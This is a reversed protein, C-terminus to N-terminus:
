GAQLPVFLRQEGRQVLLAITKGSRTAARLDAVSKVPKGGAQLVIDGPAVGARAAPGNVGQVLLGGSVNAAEQEQPSLPRVALGLRGKDTAEDAAARQAAPDAATGLTAALTRREGKRLVELVVKAGPASEGVMAALVGSDGVPRGNFKLVVDGPQLGAKHAASDPAVAAVLAGQPRQLGFSEALAQNM